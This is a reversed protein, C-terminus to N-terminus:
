WFVFTKFIGEIPQVFDNIWKKSTHNGFTQAPRFPCEPHMSFNITLGNLIALRRADIRKERPADGISSWTAIRFECHL